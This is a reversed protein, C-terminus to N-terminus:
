PEDEDILHHLGARFYDFGTYLTLLAALWLLGIGVQTVGAIIRDGAPGAILFGVAVLQLTTKWKALQTVPVSVRLEALFERLGSVLIERSLIVVAAWISWGLITGDAALMLLVIGVLLKDAIPDLMRGITSHQSWIRALYGDFYDTIAAVVFVALAVWRLWLGGEYIVQVFLCSAVVPVALVRGYTLLNPISFAGGRRERPIPDASSM